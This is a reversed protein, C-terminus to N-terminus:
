NKLKLPPIPDIFSFIPFLNIKFKQKNVFYILLFLLIKNWMSYFWLKFYNKSIANELCM